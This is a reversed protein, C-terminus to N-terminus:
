LSGQDLYPVTAMNLSVMKVNYDSYMNQRSNKKLYKYTYRLFFLCIFHLQPNSSAYKKTNTSNIEDQLEDRETQAQRKFKEASAM